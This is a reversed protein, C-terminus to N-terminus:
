PRAASDCRCRALARRPRSGPQSSVVLSPALANGSYGGGDAFATSLKAILGDVEAPTVAGSPEILESSRGGDDLLTTCTRTPAAVLQTIQAVGSQRLADEVYVGTDGGLQRARGSGPPKSTSCTGLARGMGLSMSGRLGADDHDSAVSQILAVRRAAVTVIQDRETMMKQWTQSLNVRQSYEVYGTSYGTSRVVCAEDIAHYCVRGLLM